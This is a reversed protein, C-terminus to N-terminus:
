SVDPKKAVVVLRTNEYRHYREYEEPDEAEFEEPINLHEVVSVEFGADVLAKEFQLTARYYNPGQGGWPYDVTFKGPEDLESTAKMKDPHTTIFFFTGGDVLADYTISFTSQLQDPDLFELVMNSIALNYKEPPLEVRSIDGVEFNAGPITRRTIEIQDPSIEIGKFCSAPIGKEIMFEEVRGSAWGLDVIALDKRGFFEGLHREYAPKGIAVWWLLQPAQDAFPEAQEDYHSGMDVNVGGNEQRPM